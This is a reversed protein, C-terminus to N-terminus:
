ITVTTNNKKVLLYQDTDDHHYHQEEDYEIDPIIIATEMVTANPKWSLLIVGFITILVGLMVNM